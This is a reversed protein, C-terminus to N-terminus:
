FKYTLAMRLLNELYSIGPRETGYKFFNVSGYASLNIKKNLSYKLGMNTIFQSGASLVDLTNTTYTLGATINLKKKFFKYGFNLNASETALIGISSLNDFYSLTTSITFPSNLNSLLYTLIVNRSDNNNLAGSITNFDTFTNKAGLITIVHMNNKGTFTYTPSFGLSYTSMKIRLTDNVISNRFDFISFSTSISLGETLQINLDASGITQTTTAARAGSLNNIRKGVSGSLQFKNQFMNFRPNITVDLRDSQMFPYGLPVFGDGIYKGTLKIGFNKGDKALALTGAYDFRSSEQIKFIDSPLNIPLSNTTILASRSDRTFASAAIEGKFYVQKGLKIRYDLSGLLGNGPMINVPNRALSATDDKMLTAIVYLHTAEEDGFGIKGSYMKRAYIGQINKTTDEEIALQSTGVFCSFRFLGPTLNLGVGFQPLNGISLESYLPVQTGLLVQIWKYKPAIGIRNSPDKIFEIFNQSGIAPLIASKQGVSLMLSIPLSFEGYTLTSNVVLRGVGGPRRAKIAGATDSTMSYFDGYIGMNGRFQWKNTSEQGIVSQTLFICLAILLCGIKNNYSNSSYNLKM